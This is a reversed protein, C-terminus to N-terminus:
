PHSAFWDLVRKSYEEPARLIGSVHRAGAPEWLTTVAPALAHLRESHSPPINTDDTGHILLVPVSTARLAAAPSARTLDVGYRLRAYVLSTEVLPRFVVRARELRVGSFQSMRLYAVETFDSFSCEAVVARFRPEGALSQILIAAGMSEGLGYLADPRQNDFLWHTWARVDGAERIGYTVPDGGSAGHGRSDPALVTYGHHLLLLTQHLVGTRTDAVGHLLIVARRKSAAPTFLWADLPAGDAARIAVSRWQAGSRRAIAGATRPDAAPRFEPRINVANECLLVAATLGVLAGGALTIAAMRDLRAHAM